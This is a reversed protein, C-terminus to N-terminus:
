AANEGTPFFKSKMLKYAAGISVVRMPALPHLDKVKDNAAEVVVFLKGERIIGALYLQRFRGNRTKFTGLELKVPRGEGRKVM